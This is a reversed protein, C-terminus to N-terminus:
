FFATTSIYGSMWAPTNTMAWANTHGELEAEGSRGVLGGLSVTSDQGTGRWAGQGELEGVLASAVSGGTIDGVPGVVWSIM